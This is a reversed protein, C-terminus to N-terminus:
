NNQDKKKKQQHQQGGGGGQAQQQRQQQQRQAQPQQQHSRQQQAQPPRDAQQRQQQRREQQVQSQRQQQRESQAQSQRQQQKRESQAQQQRAQSQRESQAQAQRQQQSREARAADNRNKQRQTDAQPATTRPRDAAQRQSPRNQQQAQGPAATTPKHHPRQTNQAGAAAAATTDRRPKDARPVGGPQGAVNPAATNPKHARPPTAGPHAQAARNANAQAQARRQEATRAAAPNNPPAAQVKAAQARDQAQRRAAANTQARNNNVALRTPRPVQAAAAARNAQRNERAGQRHEQRADVRAARNAAAIRANGINERQRQAVMRQSAASPQWARVAATSANGGNNYTVNNYNNTINTNTTVVNVNGDNWGRNWWRAQNNWGCGSGYYVNDNNWDCDYNLWSGVAFGVGFTILPTYDPQYVVPAQEYYVVQPDDPETPVIRIVEKQPAQPEKEVVVTQQPTNVLNGKDKAALRLRQVSNMVDAPQAVFAEGVSTTWELNDDMWKLVDPYRALSRVSEDWPQNDVNANDGNKQLFRDAMTIDSPVTSAPLIISILADPYLAIPGLLDDLDADSLKNAVPANNDATAPAPAPQSQQAHLPLVAAPLLAALLWSKAAVSFRRPSSQTHPKM